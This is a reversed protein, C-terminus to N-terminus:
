SIEFRVKEHFSKSHETLSHKWKFLNGCHTCKYKKVSSHTNQHSKFNTIDATQYDCKDCVFLSNSGTSKNNKKDVGVKHSRKHCIMESANICTFNCETCKRTKLRHIDNSHNRLSAAASFESDCDPCKLKVGEHVVQIHIKLDSSNWCFKDCKPCKNKSPKKGEHAITIHTKLNERRTCEYECLNCKALKKEHVIEAHNRLCQKNKFQKECNECQHIKIDM